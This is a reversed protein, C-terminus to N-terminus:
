ISLLYEVADAWAADRADEIPDNSRMAKRESEERMQHAIERERKRVKDKQALEALERERQRAKEEDELQQRRLMETRFQDGWGELQAEVEALQLETPPDDLAHEKLFNIVTEDLGRLCRPICEASSVGEFSPRSAPDAPEPEAPEAPASTASCFNALM